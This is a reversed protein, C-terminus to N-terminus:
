FWATEFWMEPKPDAIGSGHRQDVWVLLVNTGVLLGNLEAAGAVFRAHPFVTPTGTRLGADVPAVYLEIRGTALDVAYSRHDIWAAVGFQEPHSLVFPENRDDPAAVLAAKDPTGMRGAYFTTPPNDAEDTLDRASWVAVLDAGLRFVHSEDHWELAGEPALSFLRAVTGSPAVEALHATPISTGLLAHFRGRVFSVVSREATAEVNVRSLPEFKGDPDDHGSRAVVVPGLPEGGNEPVRLWRVEGGGAGDNVRWVAVFAEGDFAVDGGFSGYWGPPDLAIPARLENGQLDTVKFYTKYPGGHQQYLIGISRTGFATRAYLTENESRVLPIRETLWRGGGDIRRAYAEAKGNSRDTFTLWVADGVRHLRPTGTMGVQAFDSLPVGFRGLVLTASATAFSEGARRARASVEVSDANLGSIPVDARWTGDGDPDAAAVPAGDGVSVSVEAAPGGTVAVRLPLTSYVAPNAFFAGDVAQPFSLALTSPAVDDSGGGGGSGSSDTASAGGCAAGCLVFSVLFRASISSTSVRM